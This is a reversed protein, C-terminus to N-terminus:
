RAQRTGTCVVSPRIEAQHRGYVKELADSIEGGTAKARAADIALALPQEGHRGRELGRRPDARGAGGPHRGRRARRAVAATKAIQEARVKTNDVKLVEISDPEDPVYKNVGIM